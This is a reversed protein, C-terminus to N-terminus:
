ETNIHSTHFLFEGMLRLCVLHLRSLIDRTPSIGFKNWSQCLLQESRACKGWLGEILAACLYLCSLHMRHFTKNKFWHRNCTYSWHAWKKDRRLRRQSPSKRKLSGRLNWFHVGTASACPFTTKPAAAWRGKKSLLCLKFHYIVFRGLDKKRRKRRKERWLWWGSM